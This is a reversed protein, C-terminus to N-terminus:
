LLLSHLNYCSRSGNDLSSLYDIASLLRQRHLNHRDSRNVLRAYREGSLSSDNLLWSINRKRTLIQRKISVM